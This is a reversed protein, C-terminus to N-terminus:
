QKLENRATLIATHQNPHDLCFMLSLLGSYAEGSLEQMIAIIVVMSREKVGITHGLCQSLAKTGLSVVTKVLWSSM